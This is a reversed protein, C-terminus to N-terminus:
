MRTVVVVGLLQDGSTLIPAVVLHETPIERGIDQTQLHALTRKELAYELLSDNTKVMPPEGLKARQVYSGGDIEYIAAAELQCHHALLVLIEQAAHLRSGPAAPYRVAMLLRLEHLADRLTAPQTILDHELADHSLRLVNLQNMIRTFRETLYANLEGVRRLRTRWTTSYEGSIMVLIVGALFYLKPFAADPPSLFFWGILLIGSATIGAMVGYRLAVLVPAFWTWPFEGKSIFFPDEPSALWCLAVGIIPIVIAEVWLIRNALLPSFLASLRSEGLLEKQTRYDM